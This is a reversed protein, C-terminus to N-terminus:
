TKGYKQDLTKSVLQTYLLEADKTFLSSLGGTGALVIFVVRRLAHVVAGPTISREVLGIVLKLGAAAPGGVKIGNGSGHLSMHIVCKAHLPGLDDATVTSTMETM